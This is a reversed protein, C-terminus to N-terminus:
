KGDYQDYVSEIQPKDYFNTNCTEYKICPYTRRYLSHYYTPTHCDILLVLYFMFNFFASVIICLYKNGDRLVM